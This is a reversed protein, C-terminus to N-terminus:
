DSSKPGPRGTVEHSVVLQLVFPSDAMVLERDRLMQVLHQVLTNLATKEKFFQAGCSPCSSPVFHREKQPSIGVKVGCQKCTFELALVDSLEILVREEATM